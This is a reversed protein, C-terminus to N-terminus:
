QLVNELYELARSHPSSADSGRLYGRGLGDLAGSLRQFSVSPERPDVEGPARTYLVSDRQRSQGQGEELAKVNNEHRNHESLWRNVSYRYAM